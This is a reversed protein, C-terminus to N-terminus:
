QLYKVQLVCKMSSVVRSSPVVAARCIHLMNERVIFLLLISEVNEPNMMM